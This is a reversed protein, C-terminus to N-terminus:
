QVRNNLYYEDRPFLDKNVSSDPRPSEPGWLASQTTAWEAVQEPTLKADELRAKIAPERLRALLSQPSFLIPEESGLLVGLPKLLVAHPFVSVFTSVTRQTPAWQVAIGGPALRSRVLEFFEKSYLLGSGATRPLIADAEIVDFLAASGALDRRGDGAVWEYRKDGLLAALGDDRGTSLLKRQVEYVPEVLEVVRVRDVSPSLGAAYPTAGLGSGIVLVSKPSSHVLPGVAGLLIHYPQFPLHSQSHGFVYLRAQPDLRVLAVGTRDEAHVTDVSDPVQHVWKWFRDNEPFFFAFVFLALGAALAGAKARVPAHGALLLLTVGAAMGGILRLTGSTGLYHLLVLGTVLSGAANGLINSLQILSVRQGVLAPDEQIARQVIPFSMGLLLAPPVVLVLTVGMVAVM